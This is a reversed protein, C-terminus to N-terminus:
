FEGPKKPRDERYACWGFHDLIDAAQFLDCQWDELGPAVAVRATQSGHSREAYPASPSIGTCTISALCCPSFSPSLSAAV